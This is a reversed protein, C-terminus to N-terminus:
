FFNDDQLVDETLGFHTSEKVFLTLRCSVINATLETNGKRNKRNITHGKPLSLSDEASLLVGQQWIHFDM